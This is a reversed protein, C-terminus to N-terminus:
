GNSLTGAPHSLAAGEGVTHAPAARGEARVRAPRQPTVDRYTRGALLNFITTPTVNHANALEYPSFRGLAASRRIQRVMDDTFGWRERPVNGYTLKAVISRITSPCTKYERALARIAVGRGARRRISRITDDDFLRKV